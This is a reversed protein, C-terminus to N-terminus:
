QALGHELAFRVLETRSNTGTKSFLRSVYKEVNRVSTELRRAIEKNMLGQAVLNLVSQERPTLDIKFPPPTQAIATRPSLLDKIKSIEHALKAIDMNESDEGIAPAQATRRTLLNEVIAILEDPDFPKPLYADVGAQYGQIRDGTMGKATLFVVPLAQFRPDERLQKLFQYGDVQPMMIDSIVLDPTNQQMLEWGERANSAVQVSFGSEQLYDKVAERLGPEDDVLLLQASM